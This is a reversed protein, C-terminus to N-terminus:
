SQVPKVSSKSLCMLYLVIKLKFIEVRPIWGLQAAYCGSTLQVWLLIKRHGWYDGDKLIIVKNYFPMIREEWLPKIVRMRKRRRGLEVSGEWSWELSLRHAQLNGVRGRKCYLLYADSKWRGIQNIVTMVAQELDTHCPQGKLQSQQDKRWSIRGERNLQEWYNTSLEEQWCVLM